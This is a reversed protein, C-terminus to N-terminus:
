GHACRGWSEVELVLGIAQGGKVFEIKDWEAMIVPAELNEVVPLGFLESLREALPKPGARIGVVKEQQRIGRDRALSVRRLRITIDAWRWEDDEELFRLEKPEGGESCIVMVSRKGLARAISILKRVTKVGRPM